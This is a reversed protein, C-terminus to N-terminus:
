NSTLLLSDNNDVSSRVVHSIPYHGEDIGPAYVFLAQSAQNLNQGGGEILLPQGMMIGNQPHNIMPQGYIPYSGGM